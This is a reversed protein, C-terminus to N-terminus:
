YGIKLPLSSSFGMADTDAYISFGKKIKVYHPFFAQTLKYVAYDCIFHLWYVYGM